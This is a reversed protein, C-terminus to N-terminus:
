RLLAKVRNYLTFIDEFALPEHERTAHDVVQQKMSELDDLFLPVQKELLLSVPDVSGLVPEPYRKDLRKAGKELWDLLQVLPVVENTVVQSFLETTKATYEHIAMIRIADKLEELHSEIAVPEADLRKDRRVFGSSHLDQLM